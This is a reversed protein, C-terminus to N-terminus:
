GVRGGKKREQVGRERSETGVKWRRREVRAWDRNGERDFRM